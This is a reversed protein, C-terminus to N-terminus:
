IRPWKCSYLEIIPQSFYRDASSIYMVIFNLMLSRYTDDNQPHTSQWFLSSKNVDRKKKQLLSDIIDYYSTFFFICFSLHTYQIIHQPTFKTYLYLIQHVSFQPLLLFFLVLSGFIYINPICQVCLSATKNHIFNIIFLHFINFYRHWLIM